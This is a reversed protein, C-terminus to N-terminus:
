SRRLSLHSASHACVAVWCCLLHSCVVLKGPLFHTEWARDAPGFRADGARHEGASDMVPPCKSPVPITVRSPIRKELLVDLHFGKLIM